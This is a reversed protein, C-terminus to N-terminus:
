NSEIKKLINTFDLLIHNKLILHLSANPTCLSNPSACVLTQYMNAM